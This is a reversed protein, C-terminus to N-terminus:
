TQGKNELHPVAYLIFCVILFGRGQLFFFFYGTSTEMEWSTQLLM